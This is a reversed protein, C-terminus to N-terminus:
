LIYTLVFLYLLCLMDVIYTLHSNAVSSSDILPPALTPIPPELGRGWTTWQFGWLDRGLLNQCLSSSFFSFLPVFSLSFFSSCNPDLSQIRGALQLLLMCWDNQSLTSLREWADTQRDMSPLTAIHLEIVHVLLLVTAHLCHCHCKCQRCALMALGYYVVAVTLGCSIITYMFLYIM